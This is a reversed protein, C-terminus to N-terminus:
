DARNDLMQKVLQNGAEVLPHIILNAGPLILEREEENYYSIVGIRGTYGRKRLQNIAHTLDM